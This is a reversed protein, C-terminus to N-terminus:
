LTQNNMVDNQPDNRSKKDGPLTLAEQAWAAKFEEKYELVDALRKSM